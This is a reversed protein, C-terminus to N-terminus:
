YGLEGLQRIADDAGRGVVVNWGHRVLAAHWGVQEDSLRGGTQRKMELATPQGNRARQAIIIDPVGRKLGVMALQRAHRGAGGAGHDSLHAGNPVAFYDVRRARLWDCVIRQEQYESPAANPDRARKPKPEPPRQSASWRGLAAWVRDKHADTM